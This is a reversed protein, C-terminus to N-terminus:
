RELNATISRTRVKRAKNISTQKIQPKAFLQIQLWSPGENAVEWWIGQGACRQLWATTLSSTRRYHSPQDFGRCISSPEATWRMSEILEGTIPPIMVICVEDLSARNLMLIEYAANITLTTTEWPCIEDGGSLFLGSDRISPSWCKEKQVFSSTRGFRAGAGAQRARAVPSPTSINEDTSVSEWSHGRPKSVEGGIGLAAPASPQASGDGECCLPLFPPKQSM